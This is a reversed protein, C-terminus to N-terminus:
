QHYESVYRYVKESIEKMTKQAESQSQGRVMVTLIYPRNSIYVIGSDAYIGEGYLVGIKHSFKVEEPISGALYEYASSRSMIEILKQSNEPALYSSNFLSRWFISYKKASIQGDNKYDFEIGLHDLVDDLNELKMENVILNRATNDSNILMEDLLESLTFTTGATKKYSTEGKRKAM